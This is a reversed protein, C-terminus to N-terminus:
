IKGNSKILNGLPSSRDIVFKMELAGLRKTAEFGGMSIKNKESSALNILINRAVKELEKENPTRGLNSWEWGTAKMAKRIRSFDLDGIIIDIQEKIIEEM